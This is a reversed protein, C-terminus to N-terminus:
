LKPSPVKKLISELVSKVNHGSMKANNTLTVRHCEAEQWISCVDEPLVFKRGKLMAAVRSLSALALSGRPSIGATFHETERTAQALDAIYAYIKEDTVIKRANERLCLLDNVTIVPLIDENQQASKRRLIEMESIKDPYGLSLRIMFRDLESEPLLATGVSGIPNQTAIVIFPNPLERTEGDITVSKEEMAELLASQTKGSTRNLEDALLINAFVAGRYFNFRSTQKNFVNFGTVDSPMVDPTFQIRNFSLSMAKSVALALTTKGVGPIDELLIHGDAIIAMLIKYIVDDKGIVSKKIEAVIRGIIELINDNTANYDM